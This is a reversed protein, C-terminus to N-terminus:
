AFFLRESRLQSNRRTRPICIKNGAIWDVASFLVFLSLILIQVQIFCVDLHVAASTHIWCINVCNKEERSQFATRWNTHCHSSKNGNILEFHNLKQTISICKDILAKNPEEFLMHWVSYVSHVGYTHWLRYISMWFTTRGWLDYRSHCILVHFAILPWSCLLVSFIIVQWWRAMARTMKDPDM